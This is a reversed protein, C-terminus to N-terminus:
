ARRSQATTHAPIVTEVLGTAVDYVHGSIPIRASIAPASRLVSVDVAVTDAPDAVAYDRLMSERAGVLEAYRRRFGDDALARSGCDTHHIVVVEFLPGQRVARAALEGVFAVNNIVEPTVRGGGNRVVMADGLDLGLVHAPDVRPDLCTVVLLRLAPMMTAREHGATGAFARNRAFATEVGSEYTTTEPLENM